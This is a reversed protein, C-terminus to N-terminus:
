PKPPSKGLALVIWDLHLRGGVLSIARRQFEEIPLLWVKARSLDVLAVADAPTESLLWHLGLSGSGGRRHPAAAGLVKVLQIARDRSIRLDAAFGSPPRQVRYGASALRETCLRIAESRVSSSSR